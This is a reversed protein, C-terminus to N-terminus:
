RRERRPKDELLLSVPGGLAKNEVTTCAFLRGLCRRCFFIPVMQGAPVWPEHLTSRLGAPWCPGDKCLPVTCNDCVTPAPPGHARDNWPDGRDAYYPATATDQVLGLTQALRLRELLLARNCDAPRRLSSGPQQFAGQDLWTLVRGQKVGQPRRPRLCSVPVSSSAPALLPAPAAFASSPKDFQKSLRQLPRQCPSARPSRSRRRKRPLKDGRFLLPACEPM